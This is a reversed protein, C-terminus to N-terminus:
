LVQGGTATIDINSSAFLTKWDSIWRSARNIYLKGISTVSFFRNLVRWGADLYHSRATLRWTWRRRVWDKGRELCWCAHLLM